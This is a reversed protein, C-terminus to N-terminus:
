GGNISQKEAGRKIGIVLECISQPSFLHPLNPEGWQTERGKQDQGRLDRSSRYSEQEKFCSHWFVMWKELQRKNSLQNSVLEYGSASTRSYKKTQMDILLHEKYM